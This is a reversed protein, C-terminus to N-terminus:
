NCREFSGNFIADRPTRGAGAWFGASLAFSGGFAHGVVPEGIAGQLVRCGGPSVLRGGGSVVVQGRLVTQGPADAVALAALVLFLLACRSPRPSTPHLAAIRM